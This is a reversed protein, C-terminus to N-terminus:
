GQSIDGVHSLSKSLYLTVVTPVVCDECDGDLTSLLTSVERTKHGLLMGELCSTVSYIFVYHIISTIVLQKRNDSDVSIELYGFTSLM